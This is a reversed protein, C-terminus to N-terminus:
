LNGENLKEEIKKQTLLVVEEITFNTTDIVVDYGSELYCDINYYKMYRKKDSEIRKKISLVMEDVSFVDDEDSRQDVFIRRAGVGLDVKLFIKISDPIFFYSLRGEMVFNDEKEGLEKQYLDVESDTWAEVEGLKNFENLNMGKEVAMKGRLDGMSYFKCNFKKAIKKGVSTKGSGPFGSITIRVM